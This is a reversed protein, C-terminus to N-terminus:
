AALRTDRALREETEDVHSRQDIRALAGGVGEKLDHTPEHGYCSNIFVIFQKKKGERTSIVSAM